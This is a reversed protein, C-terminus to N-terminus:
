PRAIARPRRLVTTAHDRYIAEREYRYGLKEAVRKSTTHAPDMICLTSSADLNQDAWDLAAAMTESALGKGWASEVFVWGAEPADLPPDIARRYDALVVDGLFAGSSKDTVAWSGYGLARWLGINRLLRMWSQEKTMPGAIHRTVAEDAWMAAFAELDDASHGRLITRATEIVPAEVIASM